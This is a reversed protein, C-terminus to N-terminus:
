PGPSICPSLSAVPEAGPRAGPFGRGDGLASIVPAPCLVSSGPRGYARPRTRPLSAAQHIIENITIMVRISTLIIVSPEWGGGPEFSAGRRRERPEAQRPAGYVSM